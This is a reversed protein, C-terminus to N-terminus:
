DLARELNVRGFGYRADRGSAGKDDVAQRIRNRVQEDSWSPHQSWILAAEGAVFPCAMSTGSLRGYGQGMTSGRVPLTSLVSGGPAAVEAQEGRCSFSSAWEFLWFSSTSTVCVALPDNAPSNIAGGNNGAAAVVLVGKQKAYVLAMHLVPDISADPSGLSLNIVKAGHDCAYKIGEVVTDTNGAGAKGLVKIALIKAKWAVGAVGQGNNGAAAVIGAVHTGHGHTDMPDTTRDALNPGLIVRGALEPHTYDVGTDLVAVTVGEGAPGKAWAAPAKTWRSQLGWQDDYQPDNPGSASVQYRRNPGVMAVGPQSRLRAYAQAKSMGPPLKVLQLQQGLSMSKLTQFGGAEQLLVRTGPKLAVLIQDAEESAPLVQVSPLDPGAGSPLAESGDAQLPLVQAPEDLGPRLSVVPAVGTPQGQAPRLTPRKVASPSAGCAAVLGASLVVMLGQRLRRM